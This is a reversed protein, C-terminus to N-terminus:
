EYESQVINMRTRLLESLVYWGIASISFLPVSYFAGYYGDLLIALPLLALAGFGITFWVTAVIGLIILNQMVSFLISLYLIVALFGHFFTM